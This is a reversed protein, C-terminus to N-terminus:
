SGCVTTIIDDYSGDGNLDGAPWEFAAALHRRLRLLVAIVHREHRRLGQRTRGVGGDAGTVSTASGMTISTGPLSM